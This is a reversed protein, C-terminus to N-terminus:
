KIILLKERLTTKGNNTEVVYYGQPLQEVAISITNDGLIVNATQQLVIKGTLDFIVIQIPLEENTHYNVTLTNQAPNPYLQLLNNNTSNLNEDGKGSM